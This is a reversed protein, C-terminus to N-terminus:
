IDDPDYGPEAGQEYQVYLSYPYQPPNTDIVFSDAYPWNSNGITSKGFVYEIFNLISGLDHIYPAVEGGQSLSGSIYNPKVYAGVVLLPVRFGYVYQQGNTPNNGGNTYGTCPGPPQCDPPVVDDYLGGWDDWTILIVTDQWYPVPSGNVMDTCGSSGVGNVIAAVWSPGGDGPIAGQGEGGGNHDSWNGDPVVWSVPALGCGSIDTLIPAKDTAAPPVVNPNSSTFATGSCAGNQPVCIHSTAVPASWLDLKSGRVYYKWQPSGNQGTPFLDALTSHDYCPFGLTNGYPPTYSYSEDGNPDILYEQSGSTALCGTDYGSANEAAFWQWCKENPAIDCNNNPDGYSVPHPPEQSFSSTLLSVRGRTPKFCSTPTASSTPM